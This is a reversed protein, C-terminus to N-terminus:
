NEEYYYGTFFAYAAKLASKRNDCTKKSSGSLGALALLRKFRDITCFEEEDIVDIRGLDTWLEAIYNCYSKASDSKLPEGTRPSSYGTVLYESFRGMFQTINM